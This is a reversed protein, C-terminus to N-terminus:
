TWVSFVVVNFLSPKESFIYRGPESLQSWCLSLGFTQTPRQVDKTVSSSIETHVYNSAAQDSVLTESM